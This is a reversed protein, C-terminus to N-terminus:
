SPIFAPNLASRGTKSTALSVFAVINVMSIVILVILFASRGFTFCWPSLPLVCSPFGLPYCSDQRLLCVSSLLLSLCVAAQTGGPFVCEWIQRLWIWLSAGRFWFLVLLNVFFPKHLFGAVVNPWIFPVLQLIAWLRSKSAVIDCLILLTLVPHPFRASCPCSTVSGEHSSLCCLAIFVAIPIRISVAVECLVKAESWSGQVAWM